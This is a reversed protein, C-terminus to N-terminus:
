HETPARQLRLLCAAISQWRAVGAVDGALALAGIRERAHRAAGAGHLKEIAIACGWLHEEDTM